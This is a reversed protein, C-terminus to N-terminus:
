QHTYFKARKVEAYMTIRFHKAGRATAEEDLLEMAEATLQTAKQM